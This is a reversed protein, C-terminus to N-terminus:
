ATRAHLACFGRVLLSPAPFASLPGPAKPLPWDILEVHRGVKDRLADLTEARIVLRAVDVVERKPEPATRIEGRGYSGSSVTEPTRKTRTVEITATYHEASM